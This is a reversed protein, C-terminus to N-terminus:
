LVLPAQPNERHSLVRLPHIGTSVPWFESQLWRHLSRETNQLCGRGRKSGDFPCRMM